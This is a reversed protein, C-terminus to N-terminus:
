SRRPRQRHRSKGNSIRVDGEVSAMSVERDERGKSELAQPAISVLLSPLVALFPIRPSFKM